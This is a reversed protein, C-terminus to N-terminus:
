YRSCLTRAWLKEIGLKYSIMSVQPGACTMMQPFLDACAKMKGEDYAPNLYAGSYFQCHM